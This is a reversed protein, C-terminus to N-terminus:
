VFLIIKNCNDDYKLCKIKCLMCVDFVMFIIRKIIFKFYKLVFILVFNVNDGFLIFYICVIM